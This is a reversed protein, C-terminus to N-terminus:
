PAPTASPETTAKSGDVQWTGNKCVLWPGGSWKASLGESYCAGGEVPNEMAPGAQPTSVPVTKSAQASEARKAAKEARSAANEARKAAAEARQTPSKKTQVTAAQDFTVAPPATDHGGSVLAGGAAGALLALTLTGAASLGSVRFQKVVM